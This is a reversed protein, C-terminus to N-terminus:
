KVVVKKGGVIYVGKKGKLSGTVKQGSVTYVPVNTRGDTKVEKIGTPDLEVKVKCADSTLGNATTVTVLALGEAVGTLVGNADVRVVSEDDSKWTLTTEAGEPEITPTLTLTSGVYVTASKPLTIATPEAATVTLKCYATKGNETEVNIFTQGKKLGTVVGDSSVTAITEDDSSWTLTTVAEAPEITPILTISQNVKVTEAAPLTISVPEPDDSGEYDQFGIGEGGYYRPTWGKAKIAAVQTKTCVNGENFESNDYIGIYHEETTNNQPLSSILADMSAGKIQNCDCWLDTLATNKSVDLATLQNDYCELRTLATNKSVDLATLQNDHCFLRILATNKSVDLATLQNNDCWLETLATNKSVDLATLQNNGCDLYDLATNKSVDLVTLQNNSCFLETLATFYEIGKLSSINGYSVYIRTIGKIEAETLIGDGGESLRLLYYRFNEDPFNTADIDIGKEVTFSLSLRESSDYGRKTALASLTCAKDITIGASTYKPSSTTAYGDIAYYIDADPQDATLYVKTGKAVEGGASSASLKLKGKSTVNVLYYAKYTNFPYSQTGYEFLCWLKQGTGSTMGEITCIAQNEGSVVKIYGASLHETWIISTLHSLNSVHSTCSVTKTEGVEINITGWCGEDNLYNDPNYPDRQAFVSMTGTVLLVAILFLLAKARMMFLPKKTRM